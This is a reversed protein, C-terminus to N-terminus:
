EDLLGSECLAPTLVSPNEAFDGYRRPEAYHLPPSPPFEQEGLEASDGVVGEARNPPASARICGPLDGQNSFWGISSGTGTSEMGGGDSDGEALDFHM